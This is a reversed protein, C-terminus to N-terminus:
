GKGKGSHYWAEIFQSEVQRLGFVRGGVVVGDGLGFDKHFVAQVALEVAERQREQQM